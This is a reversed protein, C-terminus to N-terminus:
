PVHAAVALEITGGVGGGVAFRERYGIHGSKEVLHAVTGAAAGDNVAEREAAVHRQRKM